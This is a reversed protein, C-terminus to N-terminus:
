SIIVACFLLGHFQVLVTIKQLVQTINQLSCVGLLLLSVDDVRIPLLTTTCFYWIRVVTLCSHKACYWCSDCQQYVLIGFLTHCCECNNKPLMLRAILNNIIAIRTQSLLSLMIILSRYDIILFNVYLEVCQYSIRIYACVVICQTGFLMGLMKSHLKFVM